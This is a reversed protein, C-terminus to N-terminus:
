EKKFGSNLSKQRGTGFPVQGFLYLRTNPRTAAVKLNRLKCLITMDEDSSPFRGGPHAAEKVHLIFDSL